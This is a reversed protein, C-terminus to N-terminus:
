FQQRHKKRVADGKLIAVSKICPYKHAAVSYIINGQLHTKYENLLWTRIEHSQPHNLHWVSYKASVVKADHVGLQKLLQLYYGTRVKIANFNYAWRSNNLSRRLEAPINNQVGKYYGNDVVMFTEENNLSNVFQMFNKPPQVVNSDVNIIIDYENIADVYLEPFLKVKVFMVRKAFSTKSPECTILFVRKWGLRFAHDRNTINDTIYITDINAEIKPPPSIMDYNFLNISVYCKKM